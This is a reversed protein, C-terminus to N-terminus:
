GWWVNAECILFTHVLSSFARVAVPSYMLVNQLVAYFGAISRPSSPTPPTNSLAYSLPLGQHIAGTGQAKRGPDGELPGSLVGCGHSCSGKGWNYLLRPNQFAKM